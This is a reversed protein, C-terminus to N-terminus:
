STMSSRSGRGASIVDTLIQEFSNVSDDWSFSAAWARAEGAMVARAEHDTALRIWAEVLGSVDDALLGTLGPRVSDRVGAVDFAVTPVGLGAAEMVVAGWGEHHAPHVLLWAASLEAAKEEESVFGTFRVNPGATAELDARLPGDGVIVLEGGTVPRVKEWAELALAVRKHPVLRGLVIFRPEVAPDGGGTPPEHAMEVVTLLRRDFGLGALADVTSQSVAVMPVRRYVRPMLWGEIWRACAAVPAPFHMKWQDTHVHHVLGVVPAGQWLPSFYPIGAEVDVVVDAHRVQRFFRWPTLLYQSYTGGSRVVRYPHESVPGGSLVTVSHGRDLLGLALRDIVVEAGGAQPHALDRWTLFVVEV